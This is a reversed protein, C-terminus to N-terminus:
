VWGSVDEPESGGIVLGFVGFVEQLGLAVRHAMVGLAARLEIEAGHDLLRGVAEFAFFEFDDAFCTEVAFFDEGECLEPERCGM